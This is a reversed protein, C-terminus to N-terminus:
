IILQTFANMEDNHIRRLPELKEGKKNDRERQPNYLSVLKTEEKHLTCGSSASFRLSM